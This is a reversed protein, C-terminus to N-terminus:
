SVVLTSGEKEMKEKLERMKEVAVAKEDLDRQTAARLSISNEVPSFTKAKALADKYEMIPGYRKPPLDQVKSKVTVIHGLNIVPGRGKQTWTKKQFATSPLPSSSVPESTGTPNTREELNLPIDAVSLEPIFNPDTTPTVGVFLQSDEQIPGDARDLVSSPIQSMTPGLPKKRAAM